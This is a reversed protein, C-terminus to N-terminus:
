DDEGPAGALSEAVAPHTIRGEAVNLGGRLQTDRVGGHALALVYPLITASLAQAATRPVAGPMNTVGFHVVDEERYTPARYDTPRMTEVCGGQDIAIDIIVSGRRMARVMDRTVVRPARAGPVLVAGIVLDADATADALAHPYAPLATVNDGVATMAAQRARLRDFVTVRAGLAAAVRVANGGAEGAGVVVVHGRETGTVGGLLLGRGGAPAHLLNLGIHVALRGAIDSMPALLPLSGDAAMVTEFAVAQLGIRQLAAALGPNAALHLYSFLIHRAALWGYEPETPEKVKVILDAQAYLDAATSTVTAGRAEYEGDAYGSGVGAATEVLVDHGAAVLASVADPVLAIRGEYPKVERPVGIRMSGGTCELRVPNQRDRWAQCLVQLCRRGPDVPGSPPWRSAHELGCVCHTIIPVMMESWPCTRHGVGAVAAQQNKSGSRRAVGGGNVGRAGVQRRQQDGTEFLAALQHGRGLDIIPWAVDFAQKARVQHVAHAAVGLTELGFHKEIMNMRCIQLLARENEFTIGAPVRGVGEDDSGAGGGLVQTDGGLFVVASFAHRGAGCAISEEVFALTDGDDAPAVRGDLFRKIKRSDGGFHHNDMAAVAELGFGDEDILKEGLGFAAIDADLPIRFEVLDEAVFGTDCADTDAAALFGLNQIHVTYEDGDAM